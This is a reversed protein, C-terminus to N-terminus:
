VKVMTEILLLRMVGGFTKLVAHDSECEFLYGPEIM